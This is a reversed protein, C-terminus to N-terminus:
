LKVEPQWGAIKAVAEVITRTNLRRNIHKVYTQATSYSINMENAAEKLRMGRAMLTVLLLQADTLGSEMKSCWVIRFAARFRERKKLDNGYIGKALAECSHISKATELLHTIPEAGAESIM